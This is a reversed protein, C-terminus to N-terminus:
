QRVLKLAREETYEGYCVVDCEWHAYTLEMLESTFLGEYTITKDSQDGSWRIRSGSLAARLFAPSV